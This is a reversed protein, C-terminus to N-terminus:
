SLRSHPPTEQRSSGGIFPEYEVYPLCEAGGKLLHLWPMFSVLQDQFAIKLPNQFPNTCLHRRAFRPLVSM